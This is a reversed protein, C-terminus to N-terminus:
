MQTYTYLYMTVRLMAQDYGGGGGGYLEGAFIQASKGLSQSGEWVWELRSTNKRANFDQAQQKAIGTKGLRGYPIYTQNLQSNLDQIHDDYPTEIYEHKADQDINLFLVYPKGENKSQKQHHNVQFKLDFYLDM